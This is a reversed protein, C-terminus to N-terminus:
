EAVLDKPSVRVTGGLRQPRSIQILIERGDPLYFDALPAQRQTASIKTIYPQGNEYHVDIINKGIRVVKPSRERLVDLVEQDYYQQISINHSYIHSAIMEDVAYMDRTLATKDHILQRITAETILAPAGPKKLGDLEDKPITKEYWDLEDAIERLAQQAIGPKQQVGEYLFKRSDEPIIDHTSKIPEGVKISGFMLQEQESVRGGDFRPRLPVAQLINPIKAAHRAVVEPNVILTRDIIQRLEGPRKRPTYWRPFGAIYEHDSEAAVSRDSIERQTSGENGLIHQYLQIRRRRISKEYILDILGPTFDDRLLSEEEPKPPTFVLNTPRINLIKFIKGVTKSMKEVKSPNLDYMYAAKELNEEAQLATMIDLQAMFDDKSTSRILEEWAREDKKMFDQLGGADIAVATLVARGMHIVTRNPGSAEVLGRSLEPIIPFRDMAKGIDSITYDPKLAGLHLLNREANLIDALEIKHPLYPNLDTFRFNMGAVELASRSLNTNYIDAPPYEDRNEYSVFEHQPTDINVGRQRLADEVVSTPQVLMGIGGDVDRGARGFMQTLEAKTAEESVLGEIGYEDLKPRNIIGDAIVATCGPFTIGSMGIPTSVVVLRSGEPVPDNFVAKRERKTLTSIMKRFVVNKSSDKERTELLAATKEMIYDIEKDGATFIMTKEHHEGIEVYAEMANIDPRETTKISYPRGEIKVVPVDKGENLEKYTAQVFSEDMTASALVLRWGKHRSVSLATAALDVETQLNAEHVEDKFHVVDKDAMREEIEAQMRIHTEPTLVTAIANPSRESRDGHIIDIMGDAADGFHPRLEERMREGLNDVVIQRPATVYIHAYGAEILFQVFQTSKGSGTAGTGIAVKNEFVSKQFEHKKEYAPLEKNGLDIHRPEIIKEQEVFQQEERRQNIKEIRKKIDLQSQLRQAEISPQNAAHGVLGRRNSGHSKGKQPYPVNGSFREAM